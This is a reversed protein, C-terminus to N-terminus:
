DVTWWDVDEGIKAIEDASLRERLTALYKDTEEPEQARAISFWFYAQSDSRAAGVGNAYMRGLM